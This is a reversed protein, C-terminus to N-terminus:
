LYDERTQTYEYTTRWDFGWPSSYGIKEYIAARWTQLEKFKEEGHLSGEQFFNDVNQTITDMPNATARYWYPSEMITDLSLPAVWKQDFDEFRFGRKLFSVETLKRYKYMTKSKDEPTYEQNVNPMFSQISLGNFQEIKEDSISMINDDGYVLVSVYKFFEDFNSDPVLHVYAMMLYMLNMICNVFTTLFAGSPLSGEWQYIKKGHIHVSHMIEEFLVRRVTRDEETSNHYFMEVVILVKEMVNAVHRADFGSYDGAVCKTFKSLRKAAIPWGTFVNLGPAMGNHVHNEYSNVLCDMFYQRNVITADVASASFARIKGKGIPLREDKMTDAYIHVSRKGQKALEIIKETRSRLKIAESNELDYEDAKGFFRTKGPYGKKLEMNYPFGPSTNRPLANCYNLAPIGVCAEEFSFVLPARRAKSNQMIYKGLEFACKNWKADEVNMVPQKFYKMIATKAYERNKLDAPESRAPGFLEYMPSKCIKTDTSQYPGKSVEGYPVAPVDYPPKYQSNFTTKIGLPNEEQDDVEELDPMSIKAALNAAEIVEELDERYLLTSLGGLVDDGAVHFGTIKGPGISKNYILVPNGCDGDQTMIERYHLSQGVDYAGEDFEVKTTSRVVASGVMVGMSDGMSKWLAVSLQPFKDLKMDKSVWNKILSVHPHFSVPVEFMLTDQDKLKQHVKAKLIADTPIKYVRKTQHSELYFHSDSQYKGDDFYRQMKTRYHYPILALRGAVILCHGSIRSDEHFRFHYYNRQLVKSAIDVSNKDEGSHATFGEEKKIFTTEDKPKNVLTKLFEFGMLAGKVVGYIIVVKRIMSLIPHQAFWTEYAYYCKKIAHKFINKEDELLRVKYQVHAETIYFDLRIVNKWMDEITPYNGINYFYDQATYKNTGSIPALACSTMISNIPVPERLQHAKLMLFAFCGDPIDPYNEKKYQTWLLMDGGRFWAGLAKVHKKTVVDYSSLERLPNFDNDWDTITVIEEDPGVQAHFLNVSSAKLSEFWGKAEQVDVEPPLDGQKILKARVMENYTDMQTKEDDTPARGYKAWLDTYRMLDDREFKGRDQNMMQEFSGHWKPQIKRAGSPYTFNEVEEMELEESCESYEEESDGYDEQMQKQMAMEKRRRAVVGSITSQLCHQYVDASATRQNFLRLIRKKLEPYGYTDVITTMTTGSPLTTTRWEQFEYVEQQFVDGKLKMKDLRRETAAANPDISFEPRPICRVRFDMRRWVAEVSNISVPRLEEVNSTYLVMRAKFHVNGKSEIDPMHLCYPYNNLMRIAEMYEQIDGGVQDRMQFADDCIVVQQGEYKEWFKNEPTRCYIFSKWDAELKDLQYDDVVEALVDLMLQQSLWTKGVGPAGTLFIGVPQPRFGERDPSCSKIKELMSKLERMYENMVRRVKLGAVGKIDRKLLELGELILNNCANQSDMTYLFRPTGFESRFRVVADCWREVEVDDLNVKIWPEEDSTIWKAAANLVKILLDVLAVFVPAVGDVIRPFAALAPLVAAMMGKSPSKKVTLGIFFIAALSVFESSYDELAQARFTGEVQPAIMESVKTRLKNIMSALEDQALYCGFSCALAFAGIWAASKTSLAMYGATCVILGLTTNKLVSLADSTTEGFNKVHEGININEVSKILGNLLDLSQPGLEAQVDLKVPIRPLWEELAQARFSPVLKALRRAVESYLRSKTFDGFDKSFHGAAIQLRLISPSHELSRMLICNVETESLGLKRLTTSPDM